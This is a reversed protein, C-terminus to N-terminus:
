LMHIQFHFHYYLTVDILMGELDVAVMHHDLDEAVVASVVAMELGVAVLDTALDLDKITTMMAVEIVWEEEVVLAAAVEVVAM